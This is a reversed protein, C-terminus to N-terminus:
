VSANIIFGGIAFLILGIFVQWWIISNEKYRKDVFGFRTRKSVPMGMSFSAFGLVMFKGGLQGKLVLSCFLMFAMIAFYSFNGLVFYFDTEYKLITHNRSM